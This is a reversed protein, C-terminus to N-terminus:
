AKAKKAKPKKKVSPKKKPKIIAAELKESEDSINKDIDNTSQESYPESHLYGMVGSLSAMVESKGPEDEEHLRSSLMIEPEKKKM